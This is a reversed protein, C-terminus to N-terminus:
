LVSGDAQNFIASKHDADQGLRLEILLGEAIHNLDLGSTPIKHSQGGISVVVDLIRSVERDVNGLGIM